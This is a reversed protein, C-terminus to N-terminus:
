TYSLEPLVCRTIEAERKQLEADKQAIAEEAVALLERRREVERKRAEQAEQQVAALEVEKLALGAETKSLQIDKDTLKTDTKEKQKLTSEKELLAAKDELEKIVGKLNTVEAQLDSKERQLDAHLAKNELLTQELTKVREGKCENEEQLRSVEDCMAMADVFHEAEQKLRTVEQELNRIDPGQEEMKSQSLITCNREATSLKEEMENMRTIISHFKQQQEKTIKQEMEQLIGSCSRKEEELASKLELVCFELTQLERELDTIREDKQHLETQLRDVQGKVETMSSDKDCISIVDLSGLSPLKTISLM